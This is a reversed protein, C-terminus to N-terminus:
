KIRNSYRIVKKINGYTRINKSFGRAKKFGKEIVTIVRTPINWMRTQSNIPITNYPTSNFM